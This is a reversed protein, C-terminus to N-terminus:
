GMHICFLHAMYSLMINLIEPMSSDEYGLIAVEGMQNLCLESLNIEKYASEYVDTSHKYKYEETGQKDILSTDGRWSYWGLMEIVSDVMNNEVNLRFDVVHKKLSEDRLFVVQEIRYEEMYLNNFSYEFEYEDMFYDSYKYLRYIEEVTQRYIPTEVINEYKDYIVDELRRIIDILYYLRHETLKHEYIQSKIRDIQERAKRVIVWDDKYKSSYLTDDMFKVSDLIINCCNVSYDLVDKGTIGTNKGPEGFIFSSSSSNTVFDLRIKM